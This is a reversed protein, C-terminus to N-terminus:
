STEQAKLRAVHIEMAEIQAEALGRVHARFWDEFEPLRERRWLAIQEGHRRQGTILKDPEPLPAYLVMKGQRFLRIWGGTRGLWAAVEDANVYGPPSIRKASM